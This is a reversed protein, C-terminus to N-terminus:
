LSSGPQQIPSSQQTTRDTKVIEAPNSTILVHESQSAVVRLAVHASGAFFLGEGVGASLLLHKEGESLFFVQTVKDLAAPSQKLLIQISSNTVIAKGYDSGLFDEIDQTITTLGLYYKRARKAISYLFMASDPYKMLYWAEDVILLRKKLDRKIRTWIHDLILFMAIPRLEDELDRIGFVTFNSKIDLNSKQDFLGALSGKIFKELRDALTKAEPDEMGVLTKYLDEMLPPEGKQTLPDPTIGKQKYTVILARDLLADETPSLNGMIVRFLGHLSLIKLGM